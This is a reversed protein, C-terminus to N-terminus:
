KTGKQPDFHSRFKAKASFGTGKKPDFHSGFKPMMSFTTGAEPFSNRVEECAKALGIVVIQWACRCVGILCRRLGEPIRHVVSYASLLRGNVPFQLIM